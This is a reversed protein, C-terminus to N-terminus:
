KSVGIQRWAPSAGPVDHTDTMAVYLGGNRQVCDGPWYGRGPDHPGQFSMVRRSELADLRAALFQVERLLHVAGADARDRVSAICALTKGFKQNADRYGRQGADNLVDALRVVEPDIATDTTM